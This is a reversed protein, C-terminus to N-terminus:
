SGRIEGVAWLYPNPSELKDEPTFTLPFPQRDTSIPKQCSQCGSVAENNATCCLFVKIHIWFLDNFDSPPSHLLQKVTQPLSTITRQTLLYHLLNGRQFFSHQECLQMQQHRHVYNSFLSLSTIPIWM